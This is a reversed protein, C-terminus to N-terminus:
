VPETSYRITCYYAEFIQEGCEVKITNIGETRRPPGLIKLITGIPPECFGSLASGPKATLIVPTNIGKGKNTVVVKNGPVLHAKPTAM